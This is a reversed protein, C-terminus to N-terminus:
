QAFARVTSTGDAIYLYGERDGNVVDDFKEVQSTLAVVTAPGYKSNFRTGPAPTVFPVEEVVVQGPGVVRLLSGEPLQAVTSNGTSFQTGVNVNAM